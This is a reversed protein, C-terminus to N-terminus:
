AGINRFFVSSKFRPMFLYILVSLILFPFPIFYWFGAFQVSDIVLGVAMIEFYRNFIFSGLIAIPFSLWLPALFVLSILFIDFLLRPIKSNNM